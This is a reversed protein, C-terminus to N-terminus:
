RLLRCWRQRGSVLGCKTRRVTTYNGAECITDNVRYEYTSPDSAAKSITETIYQATYEYTWMPRSERVRQRMAQM